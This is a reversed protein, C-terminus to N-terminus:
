SCKSADSNQIFLREISPCFNLVSNPVVHFQIKMKLNALSKMLNNNKFIYKLYTNSSPLPLRIYFLLLFCVNMGIKRM